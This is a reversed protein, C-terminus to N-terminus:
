LDPCSKAALGGGGGGYGVARVGRQGWLSWVPSQVSSAKGRAEQYLEGPVLWSQNDSTSRGKFGM